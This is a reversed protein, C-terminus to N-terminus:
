FVFLHFQLSLICVYIGFICVGVGLFLDLSSLFESVFKLISCWFSYLLSSLLHNVELKIFPLVLVVSM